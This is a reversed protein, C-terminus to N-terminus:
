SAGAAPSSEGGGGGKELEHGVLRYIASSEYFRRLASMLRRTEEDTRSELAELEALMARYTPHRTTEAGAAGIPKVAIMAGGYRHLAYKSIVGEAWEPALATAGPLSGHAARHRAFLVRLDHQSKLEDSRGSTLARHLAEIGQTDVRYIDAEIDCERREFYNSLSVSKFEAMARAALEVEPPAPAYNPQCGLYATAPNFYRIARRGEGAAYRVLDVWLAARDTGELFALPTVTQIPAGPALDYSPYIQAAISGRARARHFPFPEYAQFTTIDADFDRRLTRALEITLEVDERAAHKQAGSLIGFAHGLTELGLSVHPAEGEKGEHPTGARRPFDARTAALHRVLHLLDRYLLRKGFYPNRGNRIFTTRLYPLDFRSSNYGIFNVERGQEVARGIFEGIREVAAPEDDSAAEQHALVDVRNARIAGPLPLELRSIRITGALEDLPTLEEDVLVFSYNLIQGVYFTSTTELDYFISHV